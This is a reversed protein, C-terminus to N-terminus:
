CVSASDHWGLLVAGCRDRARSISPYGRKKGVGRSCFHGSLRIWKKATADAGHMLLPKVVGDACWNTARHLATDGTGSRSNVDAGHALLVDVIDTKSMDAVHLPTRGGWNIANVDAGHTLLLEVMEVSGLQECAYHLPTAGYNDIAHINAGHALLVKVADLGADDIVLEHLETRGGPKVADVDVGDQLLRELEQNQYFEAELSELGGLTMGRLVPTLASAGNQQQKAWHNVYVPVIGARAQYMVHVPPFNEESEELVAGSSMLAFATVLVRLFIYTGPAWQICTALPTKGSANRVNVDCGCDLICAVVAAQHDQPNSVTDYINPDMGHTLLAKIVDLKKFLVATHLASKGSQDKTTGDAGHAVLAKANEAHGYVSACHLATEGRQM